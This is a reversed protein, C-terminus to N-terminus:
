PSRVRVAVRRREFTMLNKKPRYQKPKHTLNKDPTAVINFILYQLSSLNKDKFYQYFCKSELFHEVVVPFKKM